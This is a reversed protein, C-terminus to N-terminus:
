RSLHFPDILGGSVAAEEEETAIGTFATRERRPRDRCHVLNNDHESHIDRESKNDHSVNVTFTM